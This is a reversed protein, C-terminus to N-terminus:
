ILNPEVFIKLCNAQGANILKHHLAIELAADVLGTSEIFQRLFHLYDSFAQFSSLHHKSFGPLFLDEVYWYECGDPWIVAPGDLRHRHRRNCFWEQSDKKVECFYIRDFFRDTKKATCSTIM